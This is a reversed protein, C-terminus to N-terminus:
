SLLWELADRAQERVLHDPDDCSSARLEDIVNNPYAGRNLIGQGVEAVSDAARGRLRPDPDARLVELLLREGRRDGAWMSLQGLSRIAEERVQRDKDEHLARILAPVASSDVWGPGSVAMLLRAARARVRPNLSRKHPDKDALASALVPAAPRGIRCFASSFHDLPEDSALAAVLPPVAAAGIKALEMECEIRTEDDALGSIFPAPDRNKDQRVAARRLQAIQEKVIQANTYGLEVARRLQYGAEAFRGLHAYALALNARGVPERADLTVAHELDRVAEEYRREFLHLAGLSTHLRPNDPAIELAKAYCDAAKENDGLMRHAIGLNVWAQHNGPDRDLAQRHFHLAKEPQNTEAFCNGLMTLVQTETYRHLPRGLAQELHGIAEAPRHQVLLRSGRDVEEDGTATGRHFIKM